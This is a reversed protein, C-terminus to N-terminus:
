MYDPPVLYNNEIIKSYDMIENIYDYCNQENFREVYDWKKTTEFLEEEFNFHQINNIPVM